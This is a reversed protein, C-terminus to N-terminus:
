YWFGIIIVVFVFLFVWFLKIIIVIDLSVLGGVFGVVVVYVIEYFSGGIM